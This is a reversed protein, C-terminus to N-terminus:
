GKHTQRLLRFCENPKNHSESHKCFLPLLFDVLFACYAVQFLRHRHQKSTRERLMQTKHLPAPTLDVLHGSRFCECADHGNIQVVSDLKFTRLSIDLTTRPCHPAPNLLKTDFQFVDHNITCNEGSPLDCSRYLIWATGLWIM